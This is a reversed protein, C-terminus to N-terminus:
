IKKNKIKIKKKKTMVKKMWKLTIKKKQNTKEKM